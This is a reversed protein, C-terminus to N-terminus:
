PMVIEHRGELSSRGDVTMEDPIGRTTCVNRVPRALEERAEPGEGVRQSVATRLDPWTYVGGDRDV